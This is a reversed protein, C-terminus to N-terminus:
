EMLSYYNERTFLEAEQINMELVVGSPLVMTHEEDLQFLSYFDSQVFM